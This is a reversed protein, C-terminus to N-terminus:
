SYLFVDLVAPIVCKDYKKARDHWKNFAGSYANATSDPRAGMVADPLQRALSELDPHSQHLSGNWVGTNFIVQM